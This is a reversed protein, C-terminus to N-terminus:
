WVTGCVFASYLSSVKAAIRLRSYGKFFFDRKIICIILSDSRTPRTHVRIGYCTAHDIM